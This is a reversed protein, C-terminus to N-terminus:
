AVVISIGFPVELEKFMELSTHPVEIGATDVNSSYTLFVDVKAIKKLALLYDKAHKIDAWLADIHEHLPRERELQPSYSWYDHPYGRSRNGKHEGKRHTRTPSKGLHSSIDEFDLNESFIRLSASYRFSPEEETEEGTLFGRLTRHGKTEPDM